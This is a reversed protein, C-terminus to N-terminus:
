RRLILHFGYPTEVVESLQGPELAFAADEFAPIMQGPAVTGLDGGVSATADDSYERAVDAFHAGTSLMRHADEIRARAEERSREAGSRWAGKWSVVIHAFEAEVVADRRVVHWGFPTRALPGIEGVEVSAVAAEFEPVMTGTLYVGLRGGRPASPGDSYERALAEFDEGARARQRLSEALARAQKETREATAPARVAGKWAVLVHTAAYKPETPTPLPAPAVTIPQSTPDV